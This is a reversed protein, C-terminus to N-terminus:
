GYFDSRLKQHEFLNIYWQFLDADEFRASTKSNYSASGVGIGIALEFIPFASAYFLNYLNVNIERGGSAKITYRDFGLGVPVFFSRVGATLGSVSSASGGKNFSYQLPFEGFFELFQANVAPASFVFAFGVFLGLIAKKM